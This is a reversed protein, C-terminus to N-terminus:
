LLRRSVHPDRADNVDRSFPHMLCGYTRQALVFSRIKKVIDGERFVNFVYALSYCRPYIYM